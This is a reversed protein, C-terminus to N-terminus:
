GNSVGLRERLAAIADDRDRWYDSKDCGREWAEIVYLAQRLLAEDDMLMQEQRIGVAHAAENEAHLRTVEACMQDRHERVRLAEWYLRRLEAAAALDDPFSRFRELHDALRLAAPMMKGADPIHDATM